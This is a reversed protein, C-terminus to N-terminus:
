FLVDCLLNLSLVKGHENIVCVAAKLMEGRVEEHRDGLSCKVFWEFMQQVQKQSLQKAMHGIALAVGCRATFQDPPPESVVRGFNDLVPPPIQCFIYSSSSTV